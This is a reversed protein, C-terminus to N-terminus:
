VKTGVDEVGKVDKVDEDEGESVESEPERKVICVCVTTLVDLVEGAIVGVPIAEAEKCCVDIGSEFVLVLM